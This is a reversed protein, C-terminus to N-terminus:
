GTSRPSRFNLRLLSTPPCSGGHLPGAMNDERGSPLSRQEVASPIAPRTQGCRTCGERMVPHSAPRRPAAYRKPWRQNPAAGLSAPLSSAAGLPQTRAVDAGEEIRGHSGPRSLPWDHLRQGVGRVQLVEALLGLVNERVQPGHLGAGGQGVGLGVDGVLVPEARPGVELGFDVPPARRGRRWRQRRVGRRLQGGGEADANGHPRQDGQDPLPRAM